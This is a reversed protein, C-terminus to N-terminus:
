RKFYQKFIYQIWTGSAIVEQAGVSNGAAHGDAFGINIQDRSGPLHRLQQFRNNNGDQQVHGLYLPVNYKAACGTIKGSNDLKDRLDSPTRSSFLYYPNFYSYDSCVYDNSTGWRYVIGGSSFCYMAVPVPDAPKYDNPTRGLYGSGFLLGIGTFKRGYVMYNLVNNQHLNDATLLNPLQDAYDGTYLHSAYNIQKLNGLCKVMWAKKRAKDLAPLLLAALIAIIAIVILLEILTFNGVHFFSLLKRRCRKMIM